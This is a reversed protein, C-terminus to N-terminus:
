WGVEAKSASEFLIERIADSQTRVKEPAPRFSPSRLKAIVGGALDNEFNRRCNPSLQAQPNIGTQTRVRRLANATSLSWPMLGDAVSALQCILLPKASRRQHMLGLSM